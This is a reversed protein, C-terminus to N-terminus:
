HPDNRHARHLSPMLSSSEAAANSPRLCKGALEHPMPCVTLFEPIARINGSRFRGAQPPADPHCDNRQPQLDCQGHIVANLLVGRGSARAIQDADRPDPLLEANFGRGEDRIVLIVRDPSLDCTLHVRRDRYKAHHRRVEILREFSGDAAERLASDVELNGHIIANILAEELAVRLRFDDPADVAGTSFAAEVTSDVLPSIKTLDNGIELFLIRRAPQRDGRCVVQCEQIASDVASVLKLEVGRGDGPDGRHM